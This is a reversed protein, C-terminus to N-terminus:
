TGYLESVLPPKDVLRRCNNLETPSNDDESSATSSKILNDISKTTGINETINQQFLNFHQKLTEVNPTIASQNNIINKQTTTLMNREFRLRIDQM